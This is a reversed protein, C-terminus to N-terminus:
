LSADLQKVLGFDTIKPSFGDALQGHAENQLLVNTPKLDRHVLDHMHAVHIAEALTRILRTSAQPQQPVGALRAALAGGALYELSFSPLTRQDRMRLPQVYHPHQLRAVAEADIRVRHLMEPNARGPLIMKLAVLRDLKLHRARYVIGMGGQGLVD